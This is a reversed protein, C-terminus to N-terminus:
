FVPSGGFPNKTPIYPMGGYNVANSFKSNCTTLTHDCGPYIRVAMGGSLGAITSTVTLAGGTHDSIFRREAIGSAVDWEIYGGAFYGTALLAAQPVNIVNGSISDVFGDTRFSERVVNCQGGYLVHPCQRQYMRRLGNRQLATYIPEVAIRASPGSWEVTLIRGAWITVLETDAQHYQQILCTITMTPPAIRYMDAVELDRPVTLTLALRSKEATTEIATRTIPKATFTQSSITVDRDASTYRWHQYDRAFTYVEVPRGTDTSTERADYTM